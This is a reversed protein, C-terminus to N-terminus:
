DASGREPGRVEFPTAGGTGIRGLIRQFRTEGRLRDFAPEHALFRLQMCRDEVARDLSEWARDGQGLGLHIGAVTVQSVYRQRSLEELERLVVEADQRRGALLYAEGLRGLVYGSGRSLTRAADLEQDAEAFRGRHAFALGKFLHAPFYQPDIELSSTCQRLVAEYDREYYLVGALGNNIPLSLPDLELALKLEAKAEAFQGFASHLESLVQRARAYNPHSDAVARLERFGDEWDWEYFSKVVALVTRAEALNPDIELAKECAARAKPMGDKPPVFGYVTLPLYSEGLGAFALAYTPDRELAERFYGIGRHLGEETRKNASFRGRLYLAHVDPDVPRAALVPGGAHALLNVQLSEAAHAAIDAQISLTDKLERDYQQAWLHEDTAADILQVTIRVRGGAKRVSGEIITGVSLERAIEPIGKAGEKYKMASTRSIVKLGGITSITAILEETLGDAFYEDAPDGGLNKLPLVAIRRKQPLPGSPASEKTWPLRLRYVEVPTEVNKLERPGLSVMPCDIKHQVDQFVRNTVCVGGPEALPEIRSAVNVADGYVDDGSHVVDGVHLGIRVLIADEPAVSLNRDHLLQQVAVASRVAELASSFEVLFGDGMTKVERGGYEVFVPRLLRRHEELLALARAEKAQALKTFGVIDTFM